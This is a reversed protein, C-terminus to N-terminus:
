PALWPPWAQQAVEPLRSSPQPRPVRQCHVLHEVTARDWARVFQVLGGWARVMNVITQPESKTVKVQALRTLQLKWENLISESLNGVGLTTSNQNEERWRLQAIGTCLVQTGHWAMDKGHCVIAM